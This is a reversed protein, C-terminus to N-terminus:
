CPFPFRAPPPDGEVCHSADGYSDRDSSLVPLHLPLPFTVCAPGFFFRIKSELVLLAYGGFEIELLPGRIPVEPPSYFSIGADPEFFDDVIV